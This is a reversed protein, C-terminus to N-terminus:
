CCSLFAMLSAWWYSACPWWDGRFCFRCLAFRLFTRKRIIVQRSSSGATAEIVDASISDKTTTSGRVLKLEAMVVLEAGVMWPLIRFMQLFESVRFMTM